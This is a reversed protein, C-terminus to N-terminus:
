EVIKFGEKKEINIIKYLEESIYEFSIEMNEMSIEIIELENSGDDYKFFDFYGLLQTYIQNLVVLEQSPLKKLDKCEVFIKGLLKNVASFLSVVRKRVLGYNYDAFYNYRKKIIDSRTKLNLIVENKFDESFSYFNPYLQNALIRVDSIKNFLCNKVYEDTIKSPLINEKLALGAYSNKFNRKFEKENWKGIVPISYEINWLRTEVGFSKYCIKESKKLVEEVSACYDNDFDDRSNLFTYALQEEISSCPGKTEFVDLMKNEFKSIWDQRELDSKDLVSFDTNKKVVDFSIIGSTWKSVECIIRDGYSFLGNKILPSIDFCTLKVYDPLVYNCKQLDLESNAPDAAIVQTSFESGYLSFRDLAFLSDFEVVKTRLSINRSKKYIFNLCCTNINPEVFPMCRHGVVFVGKEFEERTPVFSFKYNEFAGTRTIYLDKGIEFVMSFNKLFDRCKSKSLNQGVSKVLEVFDDLSFVSRFESLFIPIIFEIPDKM